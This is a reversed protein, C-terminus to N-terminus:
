AGEGSRSESPASSADAIRVFALRLQTLGEALSGAHRGLRDGLGDVLYGMADIATRAAALSPPQQSLHLAALEFLGYCHNAVLDEVPTALLEAAVAKLETDGDPGTEAAGAGATAGQGSQPPASSEAGPPPSPDSRPVRHEGDPTWLSSV